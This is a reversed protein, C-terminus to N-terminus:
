RDIINCFCLFYNGTALNVVIHISGVDYSQYYEGHSKANDNPFQALRPFREFLEELTEIIGNYQKDLGDHPLDLDSTLTLSIYIM